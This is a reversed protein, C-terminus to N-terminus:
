KAAHRVLRRVKKPSTSLLAAVHATRRGEHIWIKTVILEAFDEMIQQLSKGSIVGESWARLTDDIGAKRLLKNKLLNLEDVVYDAEQPDIMRSALDVCRRALDYDKFFSNTAVEGLALHANIILHKNQTQEALAIADQCLQKARQAFVPVEAPHGLLEEVRANDILGLLVKGRAMLVVAHTRQGIEYARLAQQGALDLDGVDLHLYGANLVAAALGSPHQNHACISEARELEAIASRYLQQYQQHLGRLNGKSSAQETSSAPHRTVSSDIHRKIQLALLRKVFALNTVARALNQHQPHRAEYFKMACLFHELARAYDGNRRVIRGRASAINGMAIWHDTHQLVAEAEDFVRLAGTADGCQFIIWGHQVQLVARLIESEPLLSAVELSALIDKSAKQYDAHKRHARAKWFHALLKMEPDLLDQDLRLITELTQIAESTRDVALMYFAEALRLRVYDVVNLQLRAEDSLLDLMRRLFLADRYGVDVWQALTLLFDSNSRSPLDLTAWLSETDDLLALGKGVQRSRLLFDLESLWPAHNAAGAMTENQHHKGIRENKMCSEFRGHIAPYM